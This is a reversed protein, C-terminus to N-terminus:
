SRLVIARRECEAALDALRAILAAEARVAEDTGAAASGSFSASIREIEAQSAKAFDLDARADDLQRSPSYSTFRRSLVAADVDDKVDELTIAHLAIVHNAVAM